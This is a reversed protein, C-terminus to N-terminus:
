NLHHTKLTSYQVFIGHWLWVVIAAGQPWGLQPQKAAPGAALSPLLQVRASVWGAPEEPWLLLFPLFLSLFFIWLPKKCKNQSGFNDDEWHKFCVPRWISGFPAIGELFQWTCSFTKWVLYLWYHCVCSAFSQLTIYHNFRLVTSLKGSLEPALCLTTPM